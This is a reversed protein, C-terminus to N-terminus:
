RFLRGLIQQYTLSIDKTCYLFLFYECPYSLFLFLSDIDVDKLGQNCVFTWVIFEMGVYAHHYLHIFKSKHKMNSSPDDTFLGVQSQGHM